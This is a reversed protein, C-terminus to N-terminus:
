ATMYRGTWEVLRGGCGEDKRGRAGTMWGNVESV